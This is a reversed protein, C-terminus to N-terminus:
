LQSHQYLSCVTNLPEIKAKQKNDFAHNIVATAQNGSVVNLLDMALASIENKATNPLTNFQDM